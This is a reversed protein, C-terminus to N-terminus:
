VTKFEYFLKLFLKQNRKYVIRGIFKEYKINKEEFNWQLQTRICRRLVLSVKTQQMKKSKKIFIRFADRPNLV